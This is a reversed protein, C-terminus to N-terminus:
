DMIDQLLEDNEYIKLGRQAARSVASPTYGLRGGVERGSLHYRRTALFCVVARANAITRVKSPWCLQAIAVEYYDAVSKIIEELSMHRTELPTVRNLIREVFVGGGLIREDYVDQKNLSADLTQSAQRGGTSLSPMDQHLGDYLFQMYTKRAAKKTRGFLSLVEKEAVLDYQSQGLLQPNGSWPYNALAELEAVKAARVPNLHIYRVLELLYVDEDCVISKYRNQFLHGSRKHRRNFSVAYGTLLRRMMAALPDQTPRLLLHAHNGLLAWAYCITKTERLLDSLRRVFDQRDAVTIFIDRREIGRVIM